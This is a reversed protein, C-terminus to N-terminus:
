GTEIKAGDPSAVVGTLNHYSGSSKWIKRFKWITVIYGITCIVFSLIQLERKSQSSTEEPDECHTFIHKAEQFQQICPTGHQVYNMANSSVFNSFDAGPLSQASLVNAIVLNEAIRNNSYKFTRITSLQTAPIDFSRISELNSTRINNM